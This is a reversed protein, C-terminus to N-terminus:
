FFNCKNEAFSWHNGEQFCAFHNAKRTVDGSLLASISMDKNKENCEMWQDSNSVLDYAPEGSADCGLAYLSGVGLAVRFTVSRVLNVLSM